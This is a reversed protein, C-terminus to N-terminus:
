RQLRQPQTLTNWDCALAAIRSQRSPMSRLAPYAALWRDRQGSGFATAGTATGEPVKTNKEHAFQRSSESDPMLVSIDNHSFGGGLLSEVAREAQMTTKYIGFVATNKDAM